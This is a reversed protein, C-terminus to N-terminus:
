TYLQNEKIYIAVLKSVKQQWTDSANRVMERVESSSLTREGEGINTLVVAGSNIYERAAELASADVLPYSAGPARHVCIIRSNDGSISLFRRLAEKMNTESGYYRTAFLRELTDFGVLFTLHVNVSSSLAMIRDQFFQKLSASKGVFTPEQCIAVAINHSGHDESQGQLEHALLVM